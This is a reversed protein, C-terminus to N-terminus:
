VLNSGLVLVGGPNVGFYVAKRSINMASWVILCIMVMQMTAVDISIVGSSITTVSCVDRVCNIYKRGHM